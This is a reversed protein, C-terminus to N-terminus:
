KKSKKNPKRKSDKAKKAKKSKKNKKKKKKSKSKKKAAQTKKGKKSKKTKPAQKSRKIKEEAIESEPVAAEQNPELDVTVPEPFITLGENRFKSLWYKVQGSTLGAIQGAESQTAGEDIALLAKARQNFPAEGEVLHELAERQAQNLLKGTVQEQNLESNTTAQEDM